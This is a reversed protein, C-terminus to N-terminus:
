RFAVDWFLFGILIALLGITIVFSWKLFTSEFKLHMFYLLVLTGKTSAVALAVAINLPGLDIRSVGVTVATLVFLAGLVTLLTKYSLIHDEHVPNSM